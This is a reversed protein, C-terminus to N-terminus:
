DKGKQLDKGLFYRELPRYLLLAVLSTIIIEPIMYSGNYALSWIPPAWGLENPWLVEWIWVGTIFHCAFRLLFTVVIGLVLSVRRNKCVGNFMASLGVVSFAVIYDLIIIAIAMGVSTAYQVNNLGLLLQLVSYVFATFTGWGCGYRHSIIVLPLMSCVTIGGGLAWPGSFPFLSLVTGIAVMIASEALRRSVSVKVNSM